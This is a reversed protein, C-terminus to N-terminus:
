LTDFSSVLSGSIGHLKYLTWLLCTALRPKVSLDGSETNLATQEEKRENEFEAASYFPKTKRVTLCGMVAVIHYCLLVV